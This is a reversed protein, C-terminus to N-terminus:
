NRCYTHLTFDCGQYDDNADAADQVRYNIEVVGSGGSEFIYDSKKYVQDLITVADNITAINDDYLFAHNDDDYTYSRKIGDNGTVVLKNGDSLVLTSRGNRVTRAIAALTTRGRSQFKAQKETTVWYSNFLVYTYAVATILIGLVGVAMIMEVLTFGRNGRM